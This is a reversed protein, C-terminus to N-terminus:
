KIYGYNQSYLIGNHNYGIPRDIYVHVNNGLMLKLKDAITLKKLIQVGRVTYDCVVGAEEMMREAAYESSISKSM